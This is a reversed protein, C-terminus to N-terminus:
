SDCAHTPPQGAEAALLYVMLGGILVWGSPFADHLGGLLHWTEVSPSRVEVRDRDLFPYNDSV